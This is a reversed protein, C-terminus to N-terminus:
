KQWAEDGWVDRHTFTPAGAEIEGMIRKAEVLDELDDLYEEFLYVAVEEISPGHPGVAAEVREILAIPLTFTNNM